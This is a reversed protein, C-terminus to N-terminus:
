KVTFSHTYAPVTASMDIFADVTAMDLESAFKFSNQWHDSTVPVLYWYSDASDATPRQNDSNVSGFWEEVNTGEENVFTYKFKYREDRGWSQQYFEIAKDSAKWIANGQYQYEFLFEGAPAFWLEIKAVEDMTYKGNSFDVKIRYVKTDGSHTTEGETSLKTGDLYYLEPTGSKRTALQFTGAKLETYIEYQSSSIKKFPLAAELNAGGETATGTIFLEDPTPYGAPRQVEITRFVNSKKVNLGKSSFVTWILKGIEQSKIGALTAIQNLETFSLNLTTKFGNGDAPVVKIPSSFDGGELDFAVEYLVVGNDESHASQWEFLASSNAGLNYFTLDSPSYLQEVASVETHSVQDDDRCQVTLLLLCIFALTSYLTRM